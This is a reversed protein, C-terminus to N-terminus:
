KKYKMNTILDKLFQYSLDSNLAEKDDIYPGIFSFMLGERTNKNIVSFYYSSPSYLDAKYKEYVILNPDSNLSSLRYDKPFDKFDVMDALRTVSITFRDQMVPRTDKGYRIIYGNVSFNDKSVSKVNLDVNEAGERSLEKKPLSENM